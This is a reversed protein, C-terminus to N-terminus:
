NNKERINTADCIVNGSPCNFEGGNEADSEVFQRVKNAFVVDCECVKEKCAKSVSESINWHQEECYVTNRIYSKSSEPPEVTEEKFNYKYAVDYSSNPSCIEDANHYCWDHELCLEDLSDMTKNSEPPWDQNSGCFCGYNTMKFIDFISCMPGLVIKMVQMLESLGLNLRIDEAKTNNRSELFEKMGADIELVTIGGNKDQDMRDFVEKIDDIRTILPHKSAILEKL